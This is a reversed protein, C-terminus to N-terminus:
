PAADHRTGGTIERAFEVRGHSRHATRPLGDLGEVVALVVNSLLGVAGHGFGVVSGVVNDEVGQARGEGAVGDQAFLGRGVRSPEAGFADPDDVGDVARAVEDVLGAMEGDLDAQGHSGVDAMAGDDSDDVVGDGIMEKGGSFAATRPKLFAAVRGQREVGGVGVRWGLHRGDEGARVACLSEEVEHVAERGAWRMLMPLM